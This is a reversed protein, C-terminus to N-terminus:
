QDSNPRLVGLDRLWDVCRDPWTSCSKGSKRVGFGHEGAAYMHLEASVGAQKLALYMGVSHDAKAMSDDSAHVLMVPPTGAPIRIYPQLVGTAEDVLYGSYVAVVFDPRCSVTDVEDIPEYARKDFHTATTLALHGGASFGVMGIRHPDIGWERAKSRVLSLARQADLLPGPAPLKEPQGPRRPVRYKLVIGTIGVSNFWAAVEEGELDWALNWYGGGPCILMAAGTNKEPAPRFVTITPKTVNTIWKADKTPADSPDRIREEGITGYDGPVKDPWVPLVLPKEADTGLSALCFWVVLLVCLTGPMM